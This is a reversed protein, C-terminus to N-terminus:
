ALIIFSFDTVKHSPYIASLAVGKTNKNPSFFNTLSHRYQIIDQYIMAQRNLGVKHTFSQGSIRHTHMTCTIMQHLQAVLCSRGQGGLSRGDLALILPPHLLNEGIRLDSVDELIWTDLLEELCKPCIRVISLPIGIV